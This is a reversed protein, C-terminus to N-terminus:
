NYIKLEIKIIMIMIVYCFESFFYKYNLYGLLYYIIIEIKIVRRKENQKVKFDKNEIFLM